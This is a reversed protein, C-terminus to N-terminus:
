LIEHTIQLNEDITLYIPKDLWAELIIGTNEQRKEVVMESPHFHGVVCLECDRNQYLFNLWQQKYFRRKKGQNTKKLKQETVTAIKELYNGPLVNIFWKMALSHVLRRWLLYKIDKKNILNGHAFFIKQERQNEFVLGEFSCYNFPLFNNTESFFIDRNGVLFAIKGGNKQFVDFVKILKKQLSSLKKKIGFWTHFLDGLLILYYKKANFNALLKCFPEIVKWDNSFHQDTIVLLTRNKFFIKKM